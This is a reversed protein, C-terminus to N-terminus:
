GSSTATSLRAEPIARINGTSGVLTPKFFGAANLDTNRLFEYATGHFANTGSARRWM